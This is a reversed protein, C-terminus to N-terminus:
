RARATQLKAWRAAAAFKADHLPDAIHRRASGQVEFAATPILIFALVARANGPDPEYTTTYLTEITM